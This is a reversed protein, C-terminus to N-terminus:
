KTKVIYFYPSNLLIKREEKSFKEPTNKFFEKGAHIVKAKRLPIELEEALIKLIAAKTCNPTIDIVKRGGSLNKFIVPIGSM